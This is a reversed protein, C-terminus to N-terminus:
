HEWEKTKGVDEVLNALCFLKKGMASEDTDWVDSETIGPESAM